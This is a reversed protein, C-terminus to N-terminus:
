SVRAAYTRFWRLWFQACRFSGFPSSRLFVNPLPFFTCALCSRHLRLARTLFQYAYGICFNKGDKDIKQVRDSQQMVIKAMYAKLVDGIKRAWINTRTSEGNVSNDQIELVESRWREPEFVFLLFSDPYLRLVLFRVTALVQFGLVRFDVPQSFSVRPEFFGKVDKLVGHIVSIKQRIRQIIRQQQVGLNSYIPSFKHYTSWYSRSFFRPVSHISSPCFVTCILSFWSM